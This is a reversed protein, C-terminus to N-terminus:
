REQILTLERGKQRFELQKLADMGLLIQEGEMGPLISARVNNLRIDGIQIYDIETVYATGTGNATQTQIRRGRRLNLRNELSGPIAVVTAGTDLMYVVPEDNLYGSTVYHGFRNRELTVVTQNNASYSDPSHNPNEHREEVGSFIWTALALGIISAIITMNRGMGTLEDSNPKGSHPPEPQNNQSQNNSWPDHPQNM